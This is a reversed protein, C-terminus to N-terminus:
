EPRQFAGTPEPRVFDMEEPVVILRILKPGQGPPAITAQLQTIKGEVAADLMAAILLAEFESVATM